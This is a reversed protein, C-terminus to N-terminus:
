SIRQFGGVDLEKPAEKAVTQLDLKVVDNRFFLAVTWDLMLRIRREWRPMQLLYYTRWVWWALFGRIRIKGIRGVGRYNGLSALMGMTEYVFPKLSAKDGERLVAAINRALTKAERLAHQALPPYPNGTKDPIAACDGLAWVEPRQRSRMTAEVVMRGNKAKELPFDALLPNATLGASLVITEATIVPDGPIAGDALIVKAPEIAKVRVGTVIEVGRKRFEDAAYRALSEEMEPMIRPHAEVLVFRVMERQIRPYSRLANHVFETLEGMLEVGVLGGGVIVITLLQRRRDLDEEVDAQEFLDIIHNRLYIADALTKFGIASESGPIMHRNTVGGLALVLHDYEIAYHYDDPSHRAYVTHADFDVREVDAEVFRTKKFMMRVPSVSHRPELVGSGAEFLLPTILFYNDRSVLTIEVGEDGMFQKELNLATYVGGFGGGLIVVRRGLRKASPHGNSTPTAM